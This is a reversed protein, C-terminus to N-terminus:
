LILVKRGEVKLQNEFFLRVAEAYTQHEIPLLREALTEETDNQEVAMVQQLIIPGSDLGEDVFHVTVGTVKVGYDVAQKQSHLGPFAPLLAPHVNMIRLPFAQIFISTLLRMYGALCVLDISREKLLEVIRSDFEERGAFEKHSLVIMEIGAERAYQLGPADAKNSIVVTIQAAIKHQACMQILNRLHSGRGSILVAIRGPPNM